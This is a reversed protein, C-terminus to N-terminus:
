HGGMPFSLYVLTGRMNVVRCGATVNELMITRIALKISDAGGVLREDAPNKNPKKKVVNLM